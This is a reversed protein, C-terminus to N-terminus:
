SRKKKGILRKYEISNKETSIETKILFHCSPNPYAVFPNKTFNLTINEKILNLASADIQTNKFALEENPIM